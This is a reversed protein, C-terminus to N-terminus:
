RLEAAQVPAADSPANLLIESMNLNIAVLRELLELDVKQRLEDAAQILFDNVQAVLAVTGASVEEIAPLQVEKFYLWLAVNDAIVNALLESDSLNQLASDIRIAIELFPYALQERPSLDDSM